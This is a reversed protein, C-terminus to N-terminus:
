HKLFFIFSYRTYDDAILMFYIFHGYDIIFPGCIDIFIHLLLRKAQTTRRKKFKKHCINAMSCVQCNQVHVDDFLVGTTISKLGKVDRHGM